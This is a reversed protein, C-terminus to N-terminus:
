KGKIIAFQLGSTMNIAGFCKKGLRGFGGCYLFLIFLFITIAIVGAIGFTSNGTRRDLPQHADM